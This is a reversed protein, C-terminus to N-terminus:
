EVLSLGVVEGNLLSKLDEESDIEFFQYTAECGTYVIKTELTPFSMSVIKRIGVFEMRALKEDWTMTGNADGEKQRAIQEGISAASDEDVARVLLVSEQISIPLSQTSEIFRIAFVAHVSFWNEM